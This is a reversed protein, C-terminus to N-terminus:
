AATTGSGGFSDLVLDGPNSAIELIRQILREPKPTLFDDDLSTTGLVQRLEKRSEDTHGAFQYSWLTHPVTGQNRLRHKYRKFSPTKAMGDKGWSILDEAVHRQHEDQSYAWVRTKSPWVKKHTNPQIIAYYLNPREAATKACTYDSLRFIGN